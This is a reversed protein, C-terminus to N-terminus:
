TRSMTLLERWRGVLLDTYPKAGIRLKGNGPDQLYAVTFM